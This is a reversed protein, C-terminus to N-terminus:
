TFLSVTAAFGPYRDDTALYWTSYVQVALAVLAVVGALAWRTPDALVVLPVQLDGVALASGPSAAEAPEAVAWGVVALLLTLASAGVAVGRAVRDRRGSALGALAALALVVVLLWPNM